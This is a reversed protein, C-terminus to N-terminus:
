VSNARVDPSASPGSRLRPILQRYTGASTAPTDAAGASCLIPMRAEVVACISNEDARTPRSWRTPASPCPNESASDASSAPRSPM